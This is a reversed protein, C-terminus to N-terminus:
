YGHPESEKKVFAQARLKFGEPDREAEKIAEKLAEEVFQNFTIDREHAIKMYKLLDEDSFEVPVKIRTDYDIGMVIATAKERWDEYVELDTWPVCDWAYDDIDRAEFERDYAPKYDPNLFRYARQNKYDCAEVCYVIQTKTDFTINLSYGNHDGNWSSLSYANEGWCNWGYSNGETIRYDACEMWDKIDM